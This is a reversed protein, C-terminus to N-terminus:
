HVKTSERKIVGTGITIGTIAVKFAIRVNIRIVYFFEQFIEASKWKVIGTGDTRCPLPATILTHM